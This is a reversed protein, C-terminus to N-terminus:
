MVDWKWRAQLPTKGNYLHAIELDPGAKGTDTLIEQQASALASLFIAIRCKCYM